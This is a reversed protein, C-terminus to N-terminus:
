SSHPNEHSWHNQVLYSVRLERHPQSIQGSMKASRDWLAWHHPSGKQGWARRWAFLFAQSYASVACCPSFYIGNASLICLFSQACAIGWGRYVVPAVSCNCIILWGVFSCVFLCSFFLCPADGLSNWGYFWSNDDSRKIWILAAGSNVGM